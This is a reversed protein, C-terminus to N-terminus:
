PVTASSTARPTGTPRVGVGAAYLVSETVGDIGLDREIVSDALAMTCFPALGLWTATLCFTQCVHGAEALIVRYARPFEYKWQTRAFVATMLMVAAATGFWSQTPLYRVIQRRSAGTRLRELRHRDAAYHYLGPRVGEVRRALVYVEIPHRAGGSPSTKLPLRGQGPEDVWGHVGWTLGLLTSLDAMSMARTSFSRWTRRALLTQPFAGNDKIRSLDLQPAEPYHKFSPPLPSRKARQRLRREIALHDRGFRVDKTSAHFFGAAPNWATWGDAPPTRSNVRRDARQLLDRRELVGVAIRLSAPTFAPLHAALADISRWRDFFHLIQTTLPDASIRAGSAYNEFILDAEDWYSILCPARRFLFAQRKVAREGPRRIVEEPDEQM